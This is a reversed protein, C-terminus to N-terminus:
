RRQLGDLCGFAGDYFVAFDGFVQLKEEYIDGEKKKAMLIGYKKMKKLGNQNNYLFDM